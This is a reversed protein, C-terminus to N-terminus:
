LLRHFEMYTNENYIECPKKVEAAIESATKRLNSIDTTVEQLFPIIELFKRDPDKNSRTTAIYPQEIYGFTKSKLGLLCDFYLKPIGETEMRRLMKPFCAAVVYLQFTDKKPDTVSQGLLTKLMWIHTDFSEKGRYIYCSPKSPLIDSSHGGSLRSTLTLCNIDNPRLFSM